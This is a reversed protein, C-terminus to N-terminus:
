EVVFRVLRTYMTQPTDDKERRFDQIRQMQDRWFGGYKMELHAVFEALLNFPPPPGVVTLATQSARAMQSLTTTSSGAM